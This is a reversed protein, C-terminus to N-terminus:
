RRGGGGDRGRPSAPEQGEVRSLEARARARAEATRESLGQLAADTEAPSRAEVVPEERGGGLRGASVLLVGTAAALALASLGVAARGRRRPAGRRLAVAGAVVGALGLGLGLPAALANWCSLLAAVALALAVSGRPPRRKGEEAPAVTAM